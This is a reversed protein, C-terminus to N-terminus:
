TTLDYEGRAPQIYAANNILYELTGGTVKSVEAAAAKLGTFSRVDAELVHVNKREKDLDLLAQSSAKNRVLGFVVNTPSTSLQRM